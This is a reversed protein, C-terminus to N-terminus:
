GEIGSVMFVVLAWKTMQEHNNPEPTIDFLLVVHPIEVLHGIPGPFVEAPLGTQKPEKRLFTHALTQVVDLKPFGRLEWVWFGPVGLDSM